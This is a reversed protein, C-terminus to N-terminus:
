VYAVLLLSSVVVFVASSLHIFERESLIFLIEFIYSATRTYPILRMVGWTFIAQALMREDPKVHYMNLHITSFVPVEVYEKCVISIACLVDYLGNIVFINVM